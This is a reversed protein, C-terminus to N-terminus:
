KSFDSNNYDMIPAPQLGQNVFLGSHLVSIM